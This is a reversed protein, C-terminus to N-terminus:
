EINSRVIDASKPKKGLLHFIYFSMAERLEERMARSLKLNKIREIETEELYRMTAATGCSISFDSSKLCSNCFIGRRDIKLREEAHILEKQCSPCSKLPLRYGLAWLLHLEFFSILLLPDCGNRLSHLSRLLLEFLSENRERGTAIDILETIYSAVSLKALGERLEHFSSIINAQNVVVLEDPPERDHYILHLHTFLELSINFPSSQRKARWAIAAIKGCSRGYFTVILSSERWKRARLVIAETERIAM